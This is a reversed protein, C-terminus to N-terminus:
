KRKLKKIHKFFKNIQNLMNQKIFEESIGGRMLFSNGLSNEKKIYDLILGRLDEENTVGQSTYKDYAIKINDEISLSENFRKIYRM